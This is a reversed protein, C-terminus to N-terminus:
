EEIPEFPIKAKYKHLGNLFYFFCNEGRRTTHQRPIGADKMAKILVKPNGQNETITDYLQALRDHLLRGSNWGETFDKINNENALDELKDYKQHTIFHLLQQYVPMSNIILDEKDTTDPAIVYNDKHLNNVQTALYYCFDMIEAKLKAQVSIIGGAEIVWDLFDMRNPTKIFAIRRDQIELPLPNENATIIITLSHSYNFGDQRMARIQMEPSGSYSKIKGLAEQKDINRTLKNGYEDLQIVYKDLLWGNYQELFVKADPKAIYDFGLIKGLIHVFTDKGSGHAGIFYLVIPSYEFTTLKTRMFSLVYDRMYKDPIFTEFYKLITTPERYQQAYTEPYNLVDLEPTQRFLNFEDADLHGFEKSPNLRTRILKKTTDYQMETVNRGLLTKLTSICPRKDTFTKVYMASYNVLYYLGKKDDYFSEIYEGNMATAIFGMQKWHPDYQWIVKNEVMTKEEIMPNIITTKLRKDDMPIKWLNNIGHMTNQYLEKSVSIDAGLIASIKVLYESGRGKPVDNPHLHGQRVYKPLDRFSKPTIIKFLVPHYQYDPKSIFEELMPALRNSIAPSNHAIDSKEITQKKALTKLLALVTTPIKKLEPFKKYKWIEKTHNDETALYIFGDDSYCDLAMTNDALSFTSIENTYKYLITGGGKPKDKSVLHINYEPDLSKFINYTSDNDCDIAIIDNLKGTLLGGLRTANTNFETKYKQRWNAEFIPTNKDGSELRILTGKLPVTYYGADIFQQLVLM